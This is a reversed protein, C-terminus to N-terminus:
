IYDGHFGRSPRPHLAMQSIGPYALTSGDGVLTERWADGLYVGYSIDTFQQPYDEYGHEVTTGDDRVLLVDESGSGSNTSLKFNTHLYGQSDVYPYVDDEGSAFVIRYEGPNLTTDIGPEDPFQWKGPSDEDDTLFWGAIDVELDGPNYLEIWDASGGDGDAITLNNSAMFESVMVEGSLLLRPELSELIPLGQSESMDSNTM